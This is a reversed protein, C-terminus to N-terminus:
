KPNKCLRWPIYYCENRFFRRLYSPIVITKGVWFWKEMFIWTWIFGKTYHEGKVVLSGLPPLKDLKVWMVEIFPRFGRCMWPTQTYAQIKIYWDGEVVDKGKKNQYIM